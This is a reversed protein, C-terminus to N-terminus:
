DAQPQSLADTEIYRQICDYRVVMQLVQPVVSENTYKKFNKVTEVVPCANTIHSQVAARARSM